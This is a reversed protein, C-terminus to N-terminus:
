FRQTFNPGLNSLQCQGSSLPNQVTLNVRFFCSLNSVIDQFLQVVLRLRWFLTLVSNEFAANRFAANKKTQLGQFVRRGGESTPLSFYDRRLHSM